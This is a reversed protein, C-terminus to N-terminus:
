MAEDNDTHVSKLEPVPILDAEVSDHAESETEVTTAEIIPEAPVVPVLSPVIELKTEPAVPIVLVSGDSTAAPPTAEEPKPEATPEFAEPEAEVPAAKVEPAPVPEPIPEPTPEVPIVTEVPPTVEIPAVTKEADSSDSPAVDDTAAEETPAAEAPAAAREIHGGILEDIKTLIDKFEDNDTELGLIRGRLENSINRLEESEALTKSHSVEKEKLTKQLRDAKAKEKGWIGYGLALGACLSIVILIVYSNKM